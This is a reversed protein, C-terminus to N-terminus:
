RDTHRLARCSTGSIREATEMAPEITHKRGKMLVVHAADMDMLVVDEITQDAAHHEARRQPGRIRDVRNTTISSNLM